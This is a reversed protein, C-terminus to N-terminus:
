YPSPDVLISCTSVLQCSPNCNEGFELDLQGPQQGWVSARWAFYGVYPPSDGIVTPQSVQPNGPGDVSFGVNVWAGSQDTFYVVDFTIGDIVTNPNFVWGPDCAPPM